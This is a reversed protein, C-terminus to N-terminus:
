CRTGRRPTYSVAATACSGTCPEGVSAVALDDVLEDIVRRPLAKQTSQVSLPSPCRPVTGKPQEDSM